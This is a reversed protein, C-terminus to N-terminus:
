ISGWEGGQTVVEKYESRETLGFPTKISVNTIKNSMYLLALKDNGKKDPLNDVIDNMTERLNLKDFAKEIDVAIVDSEPANGHVVDNIMGYLMFLHDKAMKHKRGGINSDSMQQHIDEYFECHLLNDLIKKFVTLWFIGRQNDMDEKSGSKKYISTINSWTLFNPIFLEKKIINYFYVLARKLDQGICEDKFIDSVIGHPDRSKNNKLKRIAKEIDCINWNDSKINQM